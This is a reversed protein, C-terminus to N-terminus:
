GSSERNKYILIKFDFFQYIEARIVWDRIVLNYIKKM